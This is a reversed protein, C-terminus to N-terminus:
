IKKRLGYRKKEQYWIWFLCILCLILILTRNVKKLTRLLHEIDAGLYYVVFTNLPISIVAALGDMLLFKGPEMGMTGSMFFTVPRIGAFFRSLFVAKDGYKGFYEKTKQIKDETLVAQLFKFRLVKDGWKRGLFYIIVDGVLAGGVLIAITMYLNTYGKYALFGGAIIVTEEPLPLGLGCLLLIIFIGVYTFQELYVSVLDLM